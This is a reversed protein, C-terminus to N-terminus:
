TFLGNILLAVYELINNYNLVNNIFTINNHIMEKCFTPNDELFEHINRLQKLDTYEFYNQMNSLKYTYFEEYRSTAKIIVSNLGLLLRMRDSLTDGDNYLVYKYNAHKIFNEYEVGALGEKVCRDILNKPARCLMHPPGIYIYGACIDLNSNLAYKFYDIKKGNPICSTYIKNLKNLFPLTDTKRLYAITDDYNTNNFTDDSIKIDDLTFRHNPLLFQKQEGNNRCFNFCGKQPHDMLNINLICDVVFYLELVNSLLQIYQKKRKPHVWGRGDKTSAIRNNAIVITFGGQPPNIDKKLHDKVGIQEILIQNFESEMLKSNVNKLNQNVLQM